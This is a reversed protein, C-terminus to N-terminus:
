ELTLTYDATGDNVVVENKTIKTVTCDGVKGGVGVIENNIIAKATAGTTIGMLRLNAATSAAGAAFEERVFPDRGWGPDPATQAPPVPRVSEPPRAPAAAPPTRPAPSKRLLDFIGLKWVLLLGFVAVLVAALILQQRKKDMATM